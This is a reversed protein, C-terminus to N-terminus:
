YGSGDLDAFSDDEEEESDDDDSPNDFEDDTDMEDVDDGQFESVMLEDDNYSM